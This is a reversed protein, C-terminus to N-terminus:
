IMNNNRCGYQMIRPQTNVHTQQKYALSFQSQTHKIANTTHAPRWWGNCKRSGFTRTWFMLMGVSYKMSICLTIFVNTLCKHAVIRRFCTPGTLQSKNLMILVINWSSLYIAPSGCRVITHTVFEFWIYIDLILATLWCPKNSRLSISPAM